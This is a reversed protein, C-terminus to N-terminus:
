RHFVIEGEKRTEVFQISRLEEKPVKLPNQDLICFDALKGPAISGKRNEEFYQFAVNRTVGKLADLVGIQEQSELPMGRDRICMQYKFLDFYEGQRDGGM